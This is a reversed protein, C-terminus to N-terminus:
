LKRLKSKKIKEIKQNGETSLETEGEMKNMYIRKLKRIIQDHPKYLNDKLSSLCQKEFKLTQIM